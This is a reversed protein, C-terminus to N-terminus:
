ILHFGYTDYLKFAADGSVVTQNAAKLDTVMTNFLTLGSSVTRLFQQEEAKVLEAIYDQRQGIAAYHGGLADHVVPILRYLFPDNKGAQSAFHLARRIM